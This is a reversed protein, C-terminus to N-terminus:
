WIRFKSLRAPGVEDIGEWLFCFLTESESDCEGRTREVGQSVWISGLPARHLMGCTTNRPIQSSSNRKVIMETDTYRYCILIFGLYM